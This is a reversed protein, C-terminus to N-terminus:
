IANVVYSARLAGDKSALWEEVYDRYLWYFVSKASLLCTSATALKVAAAQGFEGDEFVFPGYSITKNAVWIPPIRVTCDSIQGGVKLSPLLGTAPYIFKTSFSQDVQLEAFKAYLTSYFSAM